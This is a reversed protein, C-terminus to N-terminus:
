TIVPTNCKMIDISTRVRTLKEKFFRHQKLMNDLLFKREQQKEIFYETLVWKTCDLLSKVANTYEDREKAIFQLDNRTEEYLLLLMSYKKILYDCVLSIDDDGVDINKSDSAIDEFVDSIKECNKYISIKNMKKQNRRRLIEIMGFM